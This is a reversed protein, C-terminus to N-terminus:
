PTTIATCLKVDRNCNTDDYKQVKLRQNDHIHTDMWLGAKQIGMREGRKRTSNIEAISNHTLVVKFKRAGATNMDM